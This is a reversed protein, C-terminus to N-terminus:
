GRRLSILGAAALVAGLAIMGTTSATPIQQISGLAVQASNTVAFYLNALYRVSYDSFPTLTTGSYTYHAALNGIVTAPLYDYVGTFTAPAPSGPPFFVYSSRYCFTCFSGATVTYLGPAAYTHTFSALNRYVNSGGPGGGASALFLTTTPLTSGDGYDLAPIGFFPTGAFTSATACCRTYMTLDFDAELVEHRIEAVTVRIGVAGGGPVPEGARAEGGGLLALALAGAAALARRGTGAATGRREWATRELTRAEM